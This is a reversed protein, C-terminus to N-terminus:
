ERRHVLADTTRSMRTRFHEIGVECVLFQHIIVIVQYSLSNLICYVLIKASLAKFFSRPRTQASALLRKFSTRPEHGCSYVWYEGSVNKGLNTSHIPPQAM